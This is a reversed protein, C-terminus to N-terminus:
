QWAAQSRQSTSHQANLRQSVPPSPIVLHHHMNLSQQQSCSSHRCLSTCRVVDTYRNHPPTSSTTTGVPEPACMPRSLHLRRPNAANQALITPRLRSPARPLSLSSAGLSAAPTHAVPSSASLLALNHFVASRVLSVPMPGSPSTQSPHSDNDVTTAITRSKRVSTLAPIAATVRVSPIPLCAARYRPLSASHDVCCLVTGTRICDLEHRRAYARAIVPPPQPTPVRLRRSDLHHSPPRIFSPRHIGLLAM